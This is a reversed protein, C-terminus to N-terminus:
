PMRTNGAPLQRLRLVMARVLLTALVYLYGLAIAYLGFMGGLFAGSGIDRDKIAFVITWALGTILGVVVPSRFMLRRVAREDEARTVLWWSAWAAVIFYPVGGYMLSLVLLYVIGAETGTGSYVRELMLFLSALAPLVIPASLASLYFNRVPTTLM